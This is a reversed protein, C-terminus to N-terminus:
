WMKAVPAQWPESAMVSEEVETRTTQAMNTEPEPADASRKRKRGRQTKRPAAEETTPTARLVKEAKKARKAENAAEKEARKARAQEIDEYSMVRATGVVHSKIARRVKAENNIETLSEVQHKLLSCDAFSTQTANTLKQLHRQLRQKSMENLTILLGLEYSYGGWAPCLRKNHIVVHSARVGHVPM